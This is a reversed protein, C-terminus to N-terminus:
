EWMEYYADLIIGETLPIFDLRFFGVVSTLTRYTQGVGTGSPRHLRDTCSTQQLTHKKTQHSYVTTAEEYCALGAESVTEKGVPRLLQLSHLADTTSCNFPHFKVKRHTGAVHVICM